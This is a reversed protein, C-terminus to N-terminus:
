RRCSRSSSIRLSSASSCFCSQARWLCESVLAVSPGHAPLHYPNLLLTKAPKTARFAAPSEFRGICGSAFREIFHRTVELRLAVSLKRGMNAGIVGYLDPLLLGVMYPPPRRASNRGSRACAPSRGVVLPPRPPQITYGHTKGAKAVSEPADSGKCAGQTENGSRLGPRLRGFVGSGGLGCVLWGVLVFGAVFVLQRRQGGIRV